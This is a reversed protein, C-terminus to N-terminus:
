RERWTGPSDGSFRKFARSFAAESNYGVAAAVASLKEGRDAILSAAIQMRWQMLYEMPPQGVIQAFRSALASRSLGSEKALAAVTWAQAPREHLLRLAHGVYPDRLGGLWGRPPRPLSDLYRRLIKVFLLESLRLLVSQGGARRERVEECALAVLHAVRDPDNTPRRLLIAGPLPSLLCRHLRLDCGLFGCLFRTTDRGGGDETVIPPLGGAAMTRFFAVQEERSHRSRLGAASALRYPDGHLVVLVDGAGIRVPPENVLGAWCGGETVVHFSILHQAGPLVASAFAQASPAETVWPPRAEVLFLLGGTLRISRLVASLADVEQAGTEAHLAYRTSRFPAASSAPAIL